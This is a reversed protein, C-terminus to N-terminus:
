YKMKNSRQPLRKDSMQEILDFFSFRNHDFYEKCNYQDNRFVEEVPKSTKVSAPTPPSQPPAPTSMENKNKLNPGNSKSKNAALYM